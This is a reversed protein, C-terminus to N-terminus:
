ILQADARVAVGGGPRATVTLIPAVIAATGGVM